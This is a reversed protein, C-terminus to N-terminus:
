TEDDDGFLPLQALVDTMDPRLRLRERHHAILTEIAGHCSGCGGGAECCLRVEDVTRAGKRIAKKIDAESVLLCQCLIRM